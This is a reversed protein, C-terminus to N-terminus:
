ELVLLDNALAHGILPRAGAMAQAVNVNKRAVECLLGPTRLESLWFRVQEPNPANQNQFYNVEVAGYGNAL